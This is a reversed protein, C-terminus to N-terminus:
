RCDPKWHRFGKAIEVNSYSVFCGKAENGSPKSNEIAQRGVPPSNSLGLFALINGLPDSNSAEAVGFFLPLVVSITAIAGRKDNLM